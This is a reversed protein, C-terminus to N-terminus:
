GRERPLPTTLPLADGPEMFVGASAAEDGAVHRVLESIERWPHEGKEDGDIEGFANGTQQELWAFLATNPMVRDVGEEKAAMEVVSSAGVRVALSVPIFAIPALVRRSLSRGAGSGSGPPLSLLPFGIHLAHAGTDQEYTRAEEALVRLKGLVGQQTDWAKRAAMEEPSADEERGDDGRGAVRDKKSARPPAAVQATLKATPKVSLLRRLADEPSVDRLKGLQGFDIRQRSSHPRCNLAPGDALGAFLRDLMRQLIKTASESM